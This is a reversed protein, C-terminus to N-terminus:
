GDLGEFNTSSFLSLYKYNILQFFIVMGFASFFDKQFIYMISGRRYKFQYWYKEGDIHAQFNNSLLETATLTKGPLKKIPARSLYTLM